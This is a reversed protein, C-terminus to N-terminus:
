NPKVEPSSPQAVNNDPAPKVPKVEGAPSAVIRTKFYVAFQGLDLARAQAATDLVGNPGMLLKEEQQTLYVIKCPEGPTPCQPPSVPDARVVTICAVLWAAVLFLFALNLTNRRAYVMLRQRRNLGLMANIRVQNRIDRELQTVLKHTL